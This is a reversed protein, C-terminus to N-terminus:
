AVKTCRLGCMQNAESGARVGDSLFNEEKTRRCEKRRIRDDQEEDQERTTRNGGHGQEGTLRIGPRGAGRGAGGDGQKGM